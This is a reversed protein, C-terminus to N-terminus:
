MKKLLAVLYEWCRKASSINLRELPTHVGELDPGISIMDLEPVMAAFLGCELGAHISEIQPHEGFMDCYVEVMIDRLPSNERYEWSPYEGECMVNGGLSEVLEKIKNVINGKESERNSRIMTGITFVDSVMAMGMNLSSEVTKNYMTQVGNPFERLVRAIIRSSQPTTCKESIVTNTIKVGCNPEIKKANEAINRVTERITEKVAQEMHPAVVIKASAGQPIINLKDGTTIDAIGFDTSIANIIEGLVAIGNLHPRGIDIGSHGGKLGYIEINLAIMKDDPQHMEIPVNCTARIGGACSVTFIGEEESDINILRTGRLTKKDINAAGIMGVEEDVTFIATIPPHPIDTSELVALIYAVGIGDDAGLTTGNAWIYEGDCLVEIGEKEMDKVVGDAKACVMDTHAQLIVPDRDKDECTADKYIAVNGTKDIEYQLKKRKAFDVLYQSIEQTNGSGHPIKCIEGFHYFVRKPSCESIEIM